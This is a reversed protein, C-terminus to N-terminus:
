NFKQYMDSEPSFLVFSDARSHNIVIFEPFLKISKGSKKEAISGDCRFYHEPNECVYVSAGVIHVNACMLSILKDFEHAVLQVSFPSVHQVCAVAVRRVAIMTISQATCGFITGNDFQFNAGSM